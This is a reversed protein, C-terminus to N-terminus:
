VGVPEPKHAKMKHMRLAQPRAAYEVCKACAEAPQDMTVITAAPTSITAPAVQTIIQAIAPESRLDVVPVEATRLELSGRVSRRAEHPSFEAKQNAAVLVPKPVLQDRPVMRELYRDIRDWMTQGAETMYDFRVGIINFRDVVSLANPQIPPFIKIIEIPECLHKVSQPLNAEIEPLWPPLLEKGKVVEDGIKRKVPRFFWEDPLGKICILKDIHAPNDIFHGMLRILM